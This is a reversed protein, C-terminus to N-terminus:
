LGKRAAALEDRSSTNKGPWAVGGYLPLMVVIALSALIINRLFKIRLV